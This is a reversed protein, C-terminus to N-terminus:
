ILVGGKLLTYIENIEAITAPINNLQIDDVEAYGTFSGLTGGTNSPYGKHSIFGDALNQRPVVMILYPTQVGMYGSSCGPAGPKGVNPKMSTVMNASCGAAMDFQHAHMKTETAQMRGAVQGANKATISAEQAGMEAAGAAGVTAVTAATTLISVASQIMSDFSESSTPVQVACNGNYQGIVRPIGPGPTSGPYGISVFAVCAGSLCDCHYTVNINEGMVEDVDLEQYGIYPLWLYLKTYPSYDLFSKYYGDLTITGCNIEVFQKAIRTLVVDLTALGIRHYCRDGLPPQFPVISLGAVIDSIKTFYNVLIQVINDSFIKDALLRLVSEPTSYLTLFGASCADLTPLPPIPVPDEIKIHPGPAPPPVPDPDINPDIIEEPIPFLDDPLEDFSIALGDSGGPVADDGWGSDPNTSFSHVPNAYAIGIRTIGEDDYNDDRVFYLYTEADWIHTDNWAVDEAYDHQWNTLPFEIDKLVTKTDAILDWLEIEFTFTAYDGLENHPEVDTVQFNFLLAKNAFRPEGGPGTRSYLNFGFMTQKATAEHAVNALKHAGTAVDYDDAFPRGRWSWELPPMANYLSRYLGYDARLYPVWEGAM